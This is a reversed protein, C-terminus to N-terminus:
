SDSGGSVPTRFTTAVDTHLSIFNSTNGCDIVKSQGPGIMITAFVDTADAGIEVNAVGSSASNYVLQYRSDSVQVHTGNLVASNAVPKTSM